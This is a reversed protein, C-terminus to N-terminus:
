TLLQVTRREIIALGRERATTLTQGLLEGAQEADGPRGRDILMRAWELRTRALWTPAGIRSHNAEAAAFRVDAEDFDGLTTALVGLYHSVSGIGVGVAFVAVHDPYPMLLRHLAAAREIDRLERCVAACYCWAVVSSAEIQLDSFDAVGLRELQTRAENLRGQESHVLALMARGTPLESASELIPTVPEEAEGLCGQEYRLQFLHIAFYLAADAQGALRGEEFAASVLGEADSLNGVRFARAVRQLNTMWSFVPQGLDVVLPEQAELCRDAEHPDAIEVAMRFRLWWARHATVPDGLRRAVDLLEATNALREELTDPGGIAFPRAVLVQALTAPDDLRRAIALAEDSLALRRQRDRDHFLELALIALLRARTPSDDAGSGAVAAELTDVREHDTAGFAAPKSGPSNALAARALADPDSRRQALRAALLLTERYGAEGARRQAEGLAILLEVREAEDSVEAADLLELAQRYYSVAEDHALQALARDGARRAYAVAKGATAVPATARSYHHTLAPLYDDLRAAHVTEIAEAAKRHLIVRRALTLEDYLTARVLAHAFRYHLGAGPTVLRVAVAEDLASAVTEEGVGGAMEVVAPDFELGVVAAVALVRNAEESLRSLRRGVVERVGEPIGLEELATATVWRGDRPVVAGSEALHRVVEGVFFPNGETEAHIARALAWDEDSLDHGGAKELYAAVGAADLGSLAIRQAAADRRLDALLEGLPHARSLETDRYTGVMLLQMPETARVIHRLLLLTPKAAWQLDDLVLLIPADQSTAALWAAVADFLRYRETEPDAHLPPPLRPTRQALDPVLRVLEGGFRGLRRVLHADSTHDTLHRLAEVLPQYPVGLDEDCRGALVTAGEAHVEAALAAALRTKGVGPEGGVVVLRRGGVLAEKWAALLQDLEADRGVFVRGVGTLLAPLAIPLPSALEDVKVPEGLEAPQWEVAVAPIPAALGQLTLPGLPSFRYGGRSGVLAAVLAGALIQGGAAQDCLRKAVVVPTGFFDSEEHSTEGTHLGVRVLLVRAPCVRNHDAVARQLAVACGLAAVPSSFAVMLGDGLNKVERGGADSVAQRLRAFHDRRLEDFSNEGLRHLLETSGVLDTFLFTVVGGAGAAESSELSPRPPLAPHAPRWDLEPEHRLIAGELSALPASPELGLEEGLIRRLEQYVRLADAQRGCRYLAVMRQAWLRERLPHARTLGDLEAVLEGHRGCALDADVREELAGLRTEELRTAEARALPADIVDALAPGRWLSLADRLTEAAQDHDGGRAQRRGERLLGEFRLADVAMPDVRFLYGPPRTLLVGEQGAERLAKRLRSIYVQLAHNAGEPPHDGWLGDSLREASVVTNVSLLLLVLVARERAGGVAVPAGGELVELPGLIRYEM